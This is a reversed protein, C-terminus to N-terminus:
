YGGKIDSATTGNRIIKKLGVIPHFVGTALNLTHQAEAETEVVVNGAQGIYLSRIKNTFTHDESSINVTEFEKNGSISVNNTM